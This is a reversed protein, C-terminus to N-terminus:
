AALLEQWSEVEFLREVFAELREYDSIDTLAARTAETPEGFRRAGIRLITDRVGEVRGQELGQQRGQVAGKEQLYNYLPFDELKLMAEVAGKLLTEALGPSYRASMLLWSATWLRRLEDRDKAEARFREGMAEVIRALGNAPVTGLPVVSVVSVGSLLLEEAPIEYVRIVDYHFSHVLTGDPLRRELWGTLSPSNAGKTLLVAVSRFLLKHKAEAFVSYELLRRPLAKGTHGSELEAHLGYASRGSGIKFLRDAALSIGSVEGDLAVIPVGPPLDFLSLWDKPNDSILSKLSVDFPIGTGTNASM